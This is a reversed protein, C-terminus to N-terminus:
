GGSHAGFSFARAVHHHPPCMRREALLCAAASQVRYDLNSDKLSLPEDGRRTPTACLRTHVPDSMATVVAFPDARSLHRRVPFAALSWQDRVM